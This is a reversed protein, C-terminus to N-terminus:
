GERIRKDTENDQEGRLVALRFFDDLDFSDQSTDEVRIRDLRDWIIGKYANAISEDILRCVVADGHTQVAKCTRSVLAKAGALKYASKGKYALWERLKAKVTDSLAAGDILASIASQADRDGRSPPIPPSISQEQEKYQEQEKHVNTDSPIRDYVNTNSQIRDYRQAINRANKECKEKYADKARKIDDTIFDYAISERGALEQTEGTESYVTLARLLRGLEQDSLKATKRGYDHYWLFGKVSETDAM